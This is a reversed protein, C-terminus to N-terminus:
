PAFVPHSHIVFSNCSCPSVWHFKYQHFYSSLLPAELHQGQLQSYTCNYMMYMFYQPTRYMFMIWEGIFLLCNDRKLIPSGRWSFIHRRSKGVLDSEFQGARSCFSAHLKFNQNYFCSSMVSDLCRVIFASILSRPHAPQDASENNAYSMVHKRMAGSLHILSLVSFKM